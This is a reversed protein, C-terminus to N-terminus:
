RYSSSLLLVQGIAHNLPNFPNINTFPKSHHGAVFYRGWLHYESNVCDLLFWWLFKKLFCKFFYKLFLNIIVLSYLIQCVNEFM